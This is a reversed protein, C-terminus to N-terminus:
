LSTINRHKCRPCHDHHVVTLTWTLTARPYIMGCYPCTADGFLLWILHLDGGGMTWLISMMMAFYTLIWAQKISGWTRANLGFSCVKELLFPLTGLAHLAVAAPLGTLLAQLAVVTLAGHIACVIVRENIFGTLTILPLNATDPDTQLVIKTLLWLEGIGFGLGLAMGRGITNKTTLSKWVFPLALPWLKVLEETFSRQIFTVVDRLYPEAVSRELLADLPVRLTFYLLPSIPLQLLMLWLLIRRENRESRWLLIGGIILMASVSALVAAILIGM